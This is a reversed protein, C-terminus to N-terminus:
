SGGSTATPAQTTSWVGQSPALGFGDDGYGDDDSAGDDTYSSAATESGSSSQDATAGSAHKSGSAVAVGFAATAAVALGALLKTLRGVALRSQERPTLPSSESM